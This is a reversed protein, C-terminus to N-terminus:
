RGPIAHFDPPAPREDSLMAGSVVTDEAARGSVYLRRLRNFDKGMAVHIQRTM